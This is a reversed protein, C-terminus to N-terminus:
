CQKIKIEKDVKNQWDINKQYFSEIVTQNICKDTKVKLNPSFTCEKM